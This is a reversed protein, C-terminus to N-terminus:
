GPLSFSAPLRDARVIQWAGDVPLVRFPSLQISDELLHVFRDVGGVQIRGVCSTLQYRRRLEEVLLEWDREEPGQLDLARWGGTYAMVPLGAMVQLLPYQCFLSELGSGTLTQQSLAQSPLPFHQFRGQARCVLGWSGLSELVMRDGLALRSTRYGSPTREGLVAGREVQYAFNGEEGVLLETPKGSNRPLVYDGVICEEKCDVVELRWGTKTSRVWGCFGGSPSVAWLPPSPFSGFRAGTWADGERSYRVLQFEEPVRLLRLWKKAKPVWGLVWCSSDCLLVQPARVGRVDNSCLDVLIRSSGFYRLVGQSRVVLDGPGEALVELGESDGELHPHWDPLFPTDATLGQGQQRWHSFSRGPFEPKLPISAVFRNVQSQQYPVCGIAIPFNGLWLCPFDGPDATVRRGPRGELLSASLEAYSCVGEPSEQLAVDPTLAVSEIATAEVEPSPDGPEPAVSPERRLELLASAEPDAPAAPALEAVVRPVHLGLPLDVYPQTPVAASPEPEVPQPQPQPTSDSEFLLKLSVQSNLDGAAVVPVEVELPPVAEPSSLLLDAASTESEQSGGPVILRELWDPLAPEEPKLQIEVEPEAPGPKSEVPAEATLPVELVGVPEPEKEGEPELSEPSEIEPETVAHTEPGVEPEPEPEPEPQAETEAEAEPAPQAEAEPEAEPLPESASENGTTPESDVAAVALEAVSDVKHDTAPEGEADSETQSGPQPESAVIDLRDLPEPSEDVEVESAVPSLSTSEEAPSGTEAGSEAPPLSSATPDPESDGPPVIQSEVALVPESDPEPSPKPRPPLVKRPRTRGAKLPPPPAAPKPEPVVAEAVKPVRPKAVSPQAPPATEPPSEEPQTLSPPPVRRRLGMRAGQRSKGTSSSESSAQIASDNSSPLREPKDQRTMEVMVAPESVAVEVPEVAEVAEVSEIAADVAAIAADVAEIPPVPLVWESTPVSSDVEAQVEIKPIAAPDLPETDDLLRIEISPPDTKSTLTWPIEKWVFGVAVGPTLEKGPVLRRALKTVTAANLVNDGVPKWGDSELMEARKGALLRFCSVKKRHDIYLQLYETLTVHRPLGGRDNAM